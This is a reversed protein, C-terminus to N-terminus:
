KGTKKKEKVLLQFIRAYINAFRALNPPTRFPLTWSAAGAAAARVQQEGCRLFLGAFPLAVPRLDTEDKMGLM